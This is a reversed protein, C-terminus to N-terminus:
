VVLVFSALNPGFDLPSGRVPGAVLGDPVHEAVPVRGLFLQNGAALPRIKVEVAFVPLQPREHLLDLAGALRRAQRQGLHGPTAADVLRGERAQFGPVVLVRRQVREPTVRGGDAPAQDQGGFRDAVRPRLLALRLPNARRSLLLLPGGPCSRSWAA